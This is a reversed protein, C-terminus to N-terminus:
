GRKGSASQGDIKRLGRKKAEEATRARVVVKRTETVSVIYKRM